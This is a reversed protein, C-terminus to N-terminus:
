KELDKLDKYSDLAIWLIVLPVSLIGLALIGIIINVIM